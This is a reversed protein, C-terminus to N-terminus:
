FQLRMGVTFARGPEPAIERLFSSANRIERDGLNAANLFLTWSDRSYSLNADVRTYSQTATENTGPHDQSFGRTLSLGGHWFGHEYNLNAGIRAPPIRPVYDGNSFKAHVTDGWLRLSYSDGLSLTTELEVGSFRADSQSYRFCPPSERFEEESDDFDALDSSCIERDHSFHEGSAAEHIFDAFDRHYLSASATVPGDYHWTLEISNATEKALQSDGIQFSNTAAHEGYAFLEEPTPARQAHTLTLGIRQNDTLPYLYSASLNVLHHDVASAQKPNAVQQDYRVGISATGKGLATEETIFIGSSTTTNAPVFAEEGVANFKQQNLQAGIGGTWGQIELHSLEIRINNARTGYLTGLSTLGDEQELERHRYDTHSLDIDLKDLRGQLNPLLVKGSYESQRLDIRTFSDEATASSDEDHHGHSGPPIGYNTDLRSIAAGVVLNETARSLGINWADAESDTNAIHGRSTEAPDDVSNAALGPIETNKNDRKVASVHGTVSGQGGDLRIVSVRGDGNTNYRTELAGSAGSFPETHIRSDIVNVVGGMAGPGYRLTAPGRLIEIRDALLPENAIAHDPSTASADGVPSGNQLVAVRKGSLGRIVPLGVGPGFSSSSIGIQNKLTEGLTAAAERQLAEGDLVNIAGAIQEQTKGHPSATIILEEITEGHSKQAIFFLPLALGMLRHFKM